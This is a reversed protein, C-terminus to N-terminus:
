WSCIRTGPQLVQLSKLFEILSDKDYKSLVQVTKRSELAESNHALVSERLTTFLGHHLYPLRM